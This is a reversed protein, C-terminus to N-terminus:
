REAAPVFTLANGPCVEVCIPGEPRNYCLDCKFYVRKRAVNKFGIVEREPALPCARLCAGCGRCKEPDIIRAGTTEDIFIAPDDWRAACAYYCAPWECQKCVVLTPPGPIFDDFEVRIRSLSPNCEAEHFLSCAVECERCTLCREADVAIVGSRPLRPIQTITM